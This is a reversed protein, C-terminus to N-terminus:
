TAGQGCEPVTTLSSGAASPLSRVRCGTAPGAAKLSWGEGPGEPPLPASAAQAPQGALWDRM